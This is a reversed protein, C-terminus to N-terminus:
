NFVFFHFCKDIWYEGFEYIAYSKFPESGTIVWKDKQYSRRTFSYTHAHLVPPIVSVPFYRLLWPFVNGPAVGDVMYRVHVAGPDFGPGQPSLGAILRWLWPVAM